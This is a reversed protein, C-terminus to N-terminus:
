TASSSASAISSALLAHPTGQPMTDMWAGMRPRQPLSWGDQWASFPPQRDAFETALLAHLTPPMKWDTATASSGEEPHPAMLNYAPLDACQHLACPQDTIEAVMEVTTVFLPISGLAVRTVAACIPCIRIMMAADYCIEILTGFGLALRHM